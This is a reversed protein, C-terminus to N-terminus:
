ERILPSCQGTDPLQDTLILLSMTFSLVLTIKFSSRKGGELTLACSGLDALMILVSPLILTVITNFPNTSM